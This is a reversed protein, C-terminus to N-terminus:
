WSCCAGMSISYDQQADIYQTVPLATIDTGARVLHSCECCPPQVCPSDCVRVCLCAPACPTGTSIRIQVTGRAGDGQGTGLAERRCSMHLQRAPGCGPGTRVCVCVCVCAAGRRVHEPRAAHMYARCGHSRLYLTQTRHTHTAATTAHTHTHTHTHTAATDPLSVQMEKAQREKFKEWEARIEERSRLHDGVELGTCVCM